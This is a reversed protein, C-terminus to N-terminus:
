EWGHSSVVYKDLASYQGLYFHFIENEEETPRDELKIDNEKTKLIIVGDVKKIETTDAIFYSIKHAHKYDFTPKDILEIKLYKALQVESEFRQSNDNDTESLYNIINLDSSTLSNM